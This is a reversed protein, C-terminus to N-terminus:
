GLCAAAAGAAAAGRVLAGMMTGDRAAALAGAAPAGTLFGCGSGYGFLSSCWHIESICLSCDCISDWSVDRVSRFLCSSAASFCLRSRRCAWFSRCLMTDSWWDSVTRLAMSARTSDILAAILFSPSSASSRIRPRSSMFFSSSSSIAALSAARWAMRLFSAAFSDRRVARQEFRSSTAPVTESHRLKTPPKFDAAPMADLPSVTLTGFSGCGGEPSSASSSSSASSPPSPWAASSSSADPESAGLFASTSSTLPSDSSSPSSAACSSVLSTVASACSILAVFSLMWSSSLTWRGRM